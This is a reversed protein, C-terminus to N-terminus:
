SGWRCFNQHKNAADITTIVVNLRQRHPRRCTPASTNKKDKVRHMEGGPSSKIIASQNQEISQASHNKQMAITLM